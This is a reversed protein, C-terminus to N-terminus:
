ACKALVKQMKSKDRPKLCANEPNKKGDLHKEMIEHKLNRRMLERYTQNESKQRAQKVVTSLAPYKIKRERKNLQREDPNHRKLELNCVLFHALHLIGLVSETSQVAYQDFGFDQKMRRFHTEISWRVRSLAWIEELSQSTDGSVYYAFPDEEKNEEVNAVACLMLSQISGSLRVIGGAIEKPTGSTHTTTRPLISALKSVWPHIVQGKPGRTALSKKNLQTVNRNRKIEIVFGFGESKLWSFLHKSGFWSDALVTLGGFGAAKLATLEEKLVELRPKYKPHKKGYLLVEVLPYVAGTYRDILVIALFNRGKRKTNFTHDYWPCNAGNKGSHAKLTDDIALVYRRFSLDLIGKLIQAVRKVRRLNLKEYPILKAQKSLLSVSPAFVLVRVADSFSSIGFYLSSLITLLVKYSFGNGCLDKTGNALDRIERPVSLIVM